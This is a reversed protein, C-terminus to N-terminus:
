PRAPQAGADLRWQVAEAIALAATLGPSEIGYLNICNAVGHQEAGQIVFDQAASGAPGLKPRVGTYGPVLQEPDLEPFYSRIATVFAEKRSEDFSYDVEPVWCVDPGFRAQNALDLTVHVGLGGPAPVPYVLHQFPQVGSLGFYHGKAYFAAPVASEPIGSIGRAVRAADLGAANVLSRCLLRTPSLGAVSLEIGDRTVSGSVVPSRLVVHGGAAVLDARLAQMLAHSDIIGTSPSFLGAVARVAPELEAVDRARLERLDDVGSREAQRAIRALAPREEERTAVILKGIRRHPVGRAECYAYLAQKGRVCLTAKLSDRAYYIGAHIVESNRSSTHSGIGAERELVVVERGTLALARAVALGIVGAGIVVCEVETM